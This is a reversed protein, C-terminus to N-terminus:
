AGKVAIGKKQLATTIKGVSKEGVNKVKALESLDVELLHKVTKYGGRRLANAIRTPLELEEVTLNYIESDPELSVGAVEEAVIEQPQYVQKFFNALIQAAQEIALRPKITGDTWIELILKDYDTRRGVRTAEVKDAVRKIPSFLADMPIVGITSSKRDEAPSYGLGRKVTLTLNLKSNKDALTALKQEPNVITVTAPTQIDKATVEKAGSVQLTLTEETDGDYAIRIEKLNLILEVVDEKMGEITTFQHKVGEIKVETIAAGEISTLLVRRLTNGMTRGYGQELPELAFKGYDDSETITATKFAATIM